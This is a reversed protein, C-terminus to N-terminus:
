KKTQTKVKDNTFIDYLSYRELEMRLINTIRDYEQYVTSINILSLDDRVWDAMVVPGEMAEIMDLLTLNKPSKRLSFGGSVEGRGQHSEVIGLSKLTRMIKMLMGQSINEKEAISKSTVVGGNDYLARIIRIAYDTTKNIKM